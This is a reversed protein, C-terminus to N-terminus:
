IVLRDLLAKMAAQEAVERSCKEAEALAARYEDLESGSYLNTWDGSKFKSVFGARRQAASGINESCGALKRCTVPGTEMFPKMIQFIERASRLGSGGPAREVHDPHLSKTIYRFWKWQREVAFSERVGEYPKFQKLKESAPSFFVAREDVDRKGTLRGLCDRSWDVFEQARGVPLSMLEHTHFGKERAQEHVYVFVHPASTGSARRSFRRREVGDGIGVNLWKAAEQNYLSLLKVAKNDDTIGLLRWCVILHTNMVSGYQWMAFALAAHLRPVEITLASARAPAQLFPNAGPQMPSPWFARKFRPRDAPPLHSYITERNEFLHQAWGHMIRDLPTRALKFGLDLAITPRSRRVANTSAGSDARLGNNELSKDSDVMTDAETKRVSGRFANRVGMIYPRAAEFIITRSHTELVGIVPIKM